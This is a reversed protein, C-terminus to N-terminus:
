DQTHPKFDSIEPLPDDGLKGVAVLAVAFITVIAGLLVGLIFAIYTM